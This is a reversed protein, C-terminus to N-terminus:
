INKSTLCKQEGKYRNCIVYIIWTGRQFVDKLNRSITSNTMRSRTHRHNHSKNKYGSDPCGEQPLSGRVLDPIGSKSSTSQRYTLYALNLVPLKKSQKQTLIDRNMTRLVKYSRAYCFESIM